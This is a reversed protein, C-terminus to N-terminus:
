FVDVGVQTNQDLIVQRVSCLESEVQTLRSDVEAKERLKEQM